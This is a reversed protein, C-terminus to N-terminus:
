PLLHVTVQGGTGQDVETVSGRAGQYAGTGGIVAFTNTRAPKFAIAVDVQGGRLKAVAQGLYTANEFGNGKVVTVDTYLTGIRTGGRRDLIPNMRVLRDGVSLRFRRSGPNKSPSKPAEDIVKGTERSADEFFTFTREGPAQASGGASLVLAATVAAAPVLLVAIRRMRHVIKEIKM